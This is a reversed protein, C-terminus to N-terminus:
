IALEYLQRGHVTGKPNGLEKADKAGDIEKALKLAQVKYRYDYKRIM